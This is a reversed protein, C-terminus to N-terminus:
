APKRAGNPPPAADGGALLSRLLPLAQMITPLAELLQKWDGEGAVAQEQAAQVKMTAIDRAAGVQEAYLGSLARMGNSMERLVDGQAKLLSSVEADRFAMTDRQGKLVLQVIREALRLEVGSGAYADLSELEKAPDTNDVSIILAGSKDLLDVALWSRSEVAAIVQAWRKRKGPVSVSQSEDEARQVVVRAPNHRKLTALLKALSGTLARDETAVKM